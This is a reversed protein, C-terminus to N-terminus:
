AQDTGRPPPHRGTPAAARGKAVAVVRSRGASNRRTTSRWIVAVARQLAGRRGAGPHDPSRVGRRAPRRPEDRRCERRWGAPSRCDAASGPTTAGLRAPGGAGGPGSGLRLAGPGVASQLDGAGCRHPLQIVFVIGYAASRAVPCRAAARRAQRGPDRVSIPSRVGAVSCYRGSARGASAAGRGTFPRRYAPSAKRRIRSRPKRSITPPPGSRCTTSYRTLGNVPRSWKGSENRVRHDRRRQPM